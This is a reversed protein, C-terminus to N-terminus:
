RRIEPLTSGERLYLLSTPVEVRWPHTDCAPKRDMAELLATLLDVLVEPVPVEGPGWPPLQGYAFYYAVPLWYNPAVPVLMRASGARLFSLFRADSDQAHTALGMWDFTPETPKSGTGWPYFRYAMDKWDFAADFFRLYPPQQDEPRPHLAQLAALGKSKLAEHELERLTWPSERLRQWCGEYWLRCCRLYGALIAEYVRLQWVEWLMSTWPPSPPSLSTDGDPPPTVGEARYYAELLQYNTDDIDRHSTIPIWFREPPLPPTPLRGSPELLEKLASAPQPVLIEVILRAGREDLSMRYIKKLWQYIGVQRLDKGRNDHVARSVREHEEMLRRERQTGLRAELRNAALQLTKQVTRTDDTTLTDQDSLSDKATGGLTLTLGNSGYSYTVNTFDRTLTDTAALSEVEHRLDQDTQTQNSKSEEDKSERERRSHQEAHSQYRESLVRKEGPMVNLTYAIEGPEYGRLQQRVLKLLGFGLLQTWGTDDGPPSLPSGLTSDALPVSDPLQARPLVVLASLAQKRPQEERLTADGRQLRQLFAFVRLANILADGEQTRGPSNAAHNITQNWLTTQLNKADDSVVWTGPSQKLADHATKVLKSFECLGKIASLVPHLGALQSTSVPLPPPPPPPPPECAQAPPAEAAPPASTATSAPTSAEQTPPPEAPPPPTAPASSATDAPHFIFRGDTEPSGGKKAYQMVLYSLIEVSEAPNDIVVGVPEDHNPHFPPAPQETWWESITLEQVTSASLQVEARFDVRPLQQFHLELELTAPPQGLQMWKRRNVSDLQFSEEQGNTASRVTGGVALGDPSAHWTVTFRGM